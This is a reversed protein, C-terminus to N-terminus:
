VCYKLNFGYPFAHLFDFPSYKVFWYTAEMHQLTSPDNTKTHENTQNLASGNYNVNTFNLKFYNITFSTNQKKHLAADDNWRITFRQTLNLGLHKVHKDALIIVIIRWFAIKICMNLSFTIAQPINWWNTASVNQTIQKICWFSRAM